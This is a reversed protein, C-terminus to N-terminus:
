CGLETLHFSYIVQYIMLGKLNFYTENANKNKNSLLNRYVVQGQHM